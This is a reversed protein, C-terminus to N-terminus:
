KRTQKPMLVIRQPNVSVGSGRPDLRNSAFKKEGYTVSRFGKLPGLVLEKVPGYEQVAEEPTLWDTIVYWHPELHEGQVCELSGAKGLADFREQGLYRVIAFGWGITKGCYGDVIQPGYDSLDDECGPPKDRPNRKIVFRSSHGHSILGSRRKLRCRVM